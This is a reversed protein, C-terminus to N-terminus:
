WFNIYCFPLNSVKIKMRIKFVRLLFKIELFGEAMLGIAFGKEFSNCQSFIFEWGNSADDYFLNEKTIFFKM